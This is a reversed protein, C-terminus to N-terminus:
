TIATATLGTYKRKPIAVYTVTAEDSATGCTIRAAVYRLTAGLHVVESDSCELFVNDELSDGAVVGSDKVVTVASFATTASAVLEVKTVGGGGVINPKVMVALNSYDKMDVYRITTGGDPGALIASTSGPDHDYSHIYLESGIKETSVASAM